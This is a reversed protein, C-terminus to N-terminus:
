SPLFQTYWTFEVDIRSDFNGEKKMNSINLSPVWRPVRHVDYQLMDFGLMVLDPLFTLSKIASHIIETIKLGFDM